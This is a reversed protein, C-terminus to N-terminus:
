MLEELTLSGKDGEGHLRVSVSSSNKEKDGVILMYPIKQVEAERIKYGLKEGREDLEARFGADALVDRVHAGYELYHESLPLVIAQVPALWFPFNGAFHEILVGIF